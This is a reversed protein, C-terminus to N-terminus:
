LNLNNLAKGHYTRSLDDEPLEDQILGRIMETNWDPSWNQSVWMLGEKLGILNLKRLLQPDAFIETFREKLLPLLHHFNKGKFNSFDKTGEVFQQPNDIFAILSILARIKPAKLASDFDLVATLKNNEHLINGMHLDTHIFVSESKDFVSIHKLFYIEIKNIDELSCLKESKIKVVYENFEKVLFKSFSPYSERGDLNVRGFDKFKIEFLQNVVDLIQKFILERKPESMECIDELLMKGKSRRMVLVEFPTKNFYDYAIVRVVPAQNGLRDSVVKNAVYDPKENNQNMKIVLQPTLYTAHVNGANAETIEEIMPLNPIDLIDLVNLVQERTFKLVRKQYQQKIEEQYKDSDVYKETDALNNRADSVKSFFIEPNIFFYHGFLEDIYKEAGHYSDQWSNYSLFDFEKSNLILDVIREKEWHQIKYKQIWDEILLHVIEHVITKSGRQSNINFVITNPLFYSGNTGYNTLYILFTDPIDKNFFNELKSSLQFYNTSFDATIQNAVEVYRGRNFEKSIQHKIKEESFEKNIGEPLRPKYGNFDYWDMKAITNKVRESELAIGFKINLTM